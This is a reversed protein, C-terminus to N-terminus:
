RFPQQRTVKLPPLVDFVFVAAARCPCAHWLPLDENSALQHLCRGLIAHFILLLLHGQPVRGLNKQCTLDVVLQLAVTV